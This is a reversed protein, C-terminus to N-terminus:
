YANGRPFINVVAIVKEEELLAFIIRYDGIRQRYFGKLEGTLPKVQINELPNQQRSLALLREKINRKRKKDLKKFYKEAISSVKISWSM